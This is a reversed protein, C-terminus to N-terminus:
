GGPRQWLAPPAAGRAPWDLQTRSGQKVGSRELAARRCPSPAVGGWPRGRRVWWSSPSSERVASLPSRPAGTRSPSGAGLRCCCSAGADAPRRRGGGGSGRGRCGSRGPRRCIRAGGQQLALVGVANKAAWTNLRDTAKDWRYAVSEVQDAAWGRVTFSSEGRRLSRPLGFRVTPLEPAFRM